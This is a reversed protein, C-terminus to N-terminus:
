RGDAPWAREGRIVREWYNGPENDVVSKSQKAEPAFLARLVRLKQNAIAHLQRTIALKTFTSSAFYEVDLAEEQGVLRAFLELYHVRALPELGQAVM